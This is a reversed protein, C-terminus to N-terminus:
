EGVMGQTCAACSDPDARVDPGCPGCLLAAEKHAKHRTSKQGGKSTGCKVHTNLWSITSVALRMKTARVKRSHASKPTYTDRKHDSKRRLSTATSNLAAVGHHESLTNCM